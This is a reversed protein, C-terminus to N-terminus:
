AELTSETAISQWGGPVMSQLVHTGERLQAGHTCQEGLFGALSALPLHSRGGLSKYM